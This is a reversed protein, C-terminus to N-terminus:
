NVKQISVNIRGPNDPALSIWFPWFTVEASEIADNQKLVQKIENEGQGSLQTKLQETNIVGVAVENVKVTFTLATKDANLKEDAYSIIRTNPDPQETGTLKGNLTNDALAAADNEAFAFVEYTVELHAKFQGNADPTDYSFKPVNDGQAGNLVVMGQPIHANIYDQLGSTLIQTLSDKAKAVDNASAVFSGQTGGGSMSISSQGYFGNFRATGAFGPITFRSPGINYEPGAVDATVSATVIGPTAVKGSKVSAGPVTVANDLRFIKGDATALRTNKVLLQSASGYENYISIEGQAKSAQQQQQTAVFNGDVEQPIQIDKGPIRSKDIDVTSVSADAIVQFDFRVTDKKPVISVSVRPSLVWFITGAAVAVILFTVLIFKWSFAIGKHNEHPEAPARRQRFMFKDSDDENQERRRLVSPIYDSPPMVRVPVEEEKDSVNDSAVAFVGTDAENELQESSMELVDINASKAADLIKQNQSVIVANKGLSSAERRLLKLNVPDSFLGPNIDAAIYLVKEETNAMRDILYAISEDPHIYIIKRM